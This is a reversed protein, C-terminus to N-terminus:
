LSFKKAGNTPDLRDQSANLSCTQEFGKATLNWRPGANPSVNRQDMSENLEIKLL